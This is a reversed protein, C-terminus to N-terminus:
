AGAGVAAGTGALEHGDSPADRHEPATEVFSQLVEQFVPESTEAQARSTWAYLRHFNGETQIVTLWSMDAPDEIQFQIAAAGGVTLSRPMSATAGPVDNTLVSQLMIEAYRELTVEPLERRSESRVILFQQGAITGVRFEDKGAQPPLTEWTGPISIRSRGDTSFVTQRTEPDNATPPRFSDGSEAEAQSADQGGFLAGLMMMFILAGMVPTSWSAQRVPRVPGPPPTGAAYGVEVVITGALKDGARQHRDGFIFIWDLLGLIPQTVNRGFSQLATCPAGSYEDVVAIGLLQKGASQGGPMADAFLYYGAGFVLAGLFSIGGAMGPLWELLAVTVVVVVLPAVMIIADIIQGLLRTSRSAYNM